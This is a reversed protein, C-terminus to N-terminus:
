GTYLYVCVTNIPGRILQVVLCISIMTQFYLLPMTWMAFTLLIEEEGFNVVHVGMYIDGM